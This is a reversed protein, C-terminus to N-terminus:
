AQKGRTLEKTFDDLVNMYNIYADYPSPYANFHQHVDGDAFWKTCMYYFHDSTQLRRWQETLSDNRRGRVAKELDYLTRAADQQMANGLWATLDRETDAWSIMDPVDLIGVPQHSRAAEAPTLFRLDPYRLLAAPLAELFSFIGSEQWQHEGFTEYDLFLNVMGDTGCAQHVAAAFKEAPLPSGDERRSFRFAIDDSLRYNRLLLRVKKCGAPRYIHRPSGSGLVREVGEALVAQFGMREAELALDNNYALETHRFSEPRRGFIAAIREAHRNVQERFEARSYLFALSHHYTEGLFEVCGPDALDQFSKLVDPRYAELQDILVGTLSFALKFKGEHGEILKRLCRNAPLYCKEAVRNLLLRNKDDDEYRHVRGIDFYPYRKIRWPQHAQFYMCVDPM